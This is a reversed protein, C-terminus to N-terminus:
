KIKKLIQKINEKIEKGIIEKGMAPNRISTKLIEVEDYGDFKKDKNSDMRVKMLINDTKVDIFWDVLQTNEPTIQKMHKGSLDSIYVKEADEANIYGDGNSDGDHIGMLLFWYKSGVYAQDYFPFYFESILAPTQLLLHTEENLKNYFIINNCNSFDLSYFNYKFSSYRGSYSEDYEDSSGSRIKLGGEGREELTKMGLPILLYDTSDLDMYEGYVLAQQKKPENSATTDNTVLHLGNQHNHGGSNMVTIIILILVSGVVGGIIIGLILRKM